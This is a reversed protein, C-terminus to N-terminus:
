HNSLKRNELEKEEKNGELIHFLDAESIVGLM